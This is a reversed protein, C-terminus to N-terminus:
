QLTGGSTGGAPADVIAGGADGAPAGGIAGGAGADGGILAGDTAGAPAPTNDLGAEGTTTAPTVPDVVPASSDIARDKPREGIDTGDTTAGKDCGSLISLGSILVGALVLKTFKM